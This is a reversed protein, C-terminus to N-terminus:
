YRPVRPDIGVSWAEIGGELNAVPQLGQRNLWAAVQGSRVGLHCYVVLLRTRAADSIEDLRLPVEGMPVHLDTATPPLPIAAFARERPERVDLVALAEGRGLREALESVTMAAIQPPRDTM